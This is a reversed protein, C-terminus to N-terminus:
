SKMIRKKSLDFADLFQTVHHERFIVRRGIKVPKIKGLRMMKELTSVGIGIREAFQEKTVTQESM